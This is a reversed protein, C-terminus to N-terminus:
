QRVVSSAALHFHPCLSGLAAISAETQIGQTIAQMDQAAYANSSLGHKSLLEKPKGQNNLANPIM